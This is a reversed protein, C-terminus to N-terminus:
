DILMYDYIIFKNFPKFYVLAFWGYKDEIVRNVTNYTICNTMNGEDDMISNRGYIGKITKFEGYNDPNRPNSDEM